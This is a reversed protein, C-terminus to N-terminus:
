YKELSCTRVGQLEDGLSACCKNTGLLLIMYFYVSLVRFFYCAGQPLSIREIQLVDTINSHGTLM